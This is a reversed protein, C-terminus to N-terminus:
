MYELWKIQIKVIKDVVENPSLQDINLVSLNPEDKDEGIDFM